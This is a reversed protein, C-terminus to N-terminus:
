LHRNALVLLKTHYHNYACSWFLNFQTNIVHMGNGTRSWTIYWSSGGHCYLVCNIEATGGGYVISYKCRLFNIRDVVKFIM